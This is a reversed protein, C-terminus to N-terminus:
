IKNRLKREEEDLHAEIVLSTDIDEKDTQRSQKEKIEELNTKTLTM